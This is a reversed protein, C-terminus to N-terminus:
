LDLEVDSSPSSCCILIRGEAPAQLPENFYSVGGDIVSTECNHCVGSRCAWRVPVDCAEALELLSAYRDEWYVTLGSRVFTVAAGETAADKPAHPPRSSPNVLGPRLAEVGGFLESSINADAFGATRLSARAEKMFITPGCLYVHADLPIDLRQLLAMTIRGQVDYDRGLNDTVHPQSFAILRVASGLQKLLSDVEVAFANDEGSRAGHVWYVKRAPSAPKAALEHLMALVPTIGIGASWFVLPHDDTGLVFSGRPASISLRDGERVQTHLYASGEGSARRVSFRYQGPLGVHSLSYSRVLPAQPPLPTVRVVIFQGGRAPPLASGDAAELVFSRVTASEMRTSRVLVDRFGTWAPEGLSPAASLMSALSERWGTSLAPVKVARELAERPHENLYLLADIETVSVDSGSRERTIADGAEICGEEIVRCYFGPRKHSVLLSPMRPEQLRLGVRYCTVRPQTVELLAEGIRFRDGICVESDPLGDVTLNEGFSGWEMSPRGLFAEWHRYSDVQYVMVARHEGGHGALDGQGDGDINLRRVMVRGAIPAKWVGTRIVQGQWPVDKPLGVNVSILTAMISVEVPPSTIIKDHSPFTRRDLWPM